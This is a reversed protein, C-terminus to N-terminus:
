PYGPASCQKRLLCAGGGSCGCGLRTLATLTACKMRVEVTAIGNLQAAGKGREGVRGIGLEGERVRAGVGDDETDCVWFRRAFSIINTDHRHCLMCKRRPIHTFIGRLVGVQVKSIETSEDRLRKSDLRLSGRHRGARQTLIVTRLKHGDARSDLLM